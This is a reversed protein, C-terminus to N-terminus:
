PNGPPARPILVDFEFTYILTDDVFIDIVHRGPPDGEDLTWFGVLWGEENTGRAEREVVTADRQRAGGTVQKPPAPLTYVERFEIDDPAAALLIGWGFTTGALLPVMRTGVLTQGQPGPVVVGFRSDTVEAAIAGLVQPEGEPTTACAASLLTAVLLLLTRVTRRM